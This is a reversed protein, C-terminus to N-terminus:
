LAVTQPKADPGIVIHDGPMADLVTFLQQDPSAVSLSGGPLLQGVADGNADSVVTEHVTGDPDAVFVSAGAVPLGTGTPDFIHVFIAGRGDDGGDNVADHPAGCAVLLACALWWRM